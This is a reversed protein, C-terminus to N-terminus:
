VGHTFARASLQQALTEAVPDTHVRVAEFDTGFAAEMRERAPTSLPQGHGREAELAAEADASVAFAGENALRQLLTNSLRRQLAGATAPTLAKPEGHVLAAMGMESLPAPIQEIEQSPSEKHKATGGQRALLREYEKSRKM